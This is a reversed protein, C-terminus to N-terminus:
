YIMTECVMSQVDLIYINNMRFMQKADWGGFMVARRHDISTLSFHEGAPPREGTTAPSSWVGATHPTTVHWLL